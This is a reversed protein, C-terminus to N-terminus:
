WRLQVEYWEAGHQQDDDLLVSLTYDNVESPHELVVAKGRASVAVASVDVASGAPLLGGAATYASSIAGSFEAQQAGCTTFDTNVPESEEVREPQREKAEWQPAWEVGNVVTPENGSNDSDGVWTGPLVYNRHEYWLTDGRVKVVDSGDILARITITNASKEGDALSVLPVLLCFLLCGAFWRRSM